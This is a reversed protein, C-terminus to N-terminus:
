RGSIESLGHTVAESQAFTAAAKANRESVNDWMVVYGLKRGSDDTISNIQARLAVGGFSFVTQRPLASPDELIREIRASDQHFRHISGGLLDPLSVGFTSQIIPALIRMSHESQRNMYILSLGLDAVLCNMFMSDLCARLPNGPDALLSALDGSSGARRANPLISSRM